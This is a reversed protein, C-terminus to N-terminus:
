VHSKRYEAPLMGETEKFVRSFYKSDKYGIRRAIEYLKLDTGLLLEKAKKMRFNKMYSSFNVGLEKTFQSSIHEPTMNMKDAIEELTIGQRYFEEILRQAKRVLIGATTEVPAAADELTKIVVDELERFTVATSVSEVIERENIAEYVSYNLEKVVLLLAMLYRVASKKIIEPTYVRKTVYGLFSEAHKRLATHDLGCLAAISDKEIQTPYSYDYVRINKIKPCCIMVDSGLSISWPLHLRINDLAKNIDKLGGAIDWGVVLSLGSVQNLERMTSIQLFRELPRFDERGYFFFLIERERTLFVAQHGAYGGKLLSSTVMNIILEKEDEYRKGLYICAIASEKGASINYSAALFQELEYDLEYQGSILGYLVADLSKLKRPDIDSREKEIERRVRQITKHFEGVEIPKVLYESVGLSIAQRAYDFESYASLLITKFSMGKDRILMRLMELGDVPEMRIDTIVIDPRQECIIRLGEEGSEAEYIHSCDDPYFRRLLKAIGERIRIEDEVIVIKM